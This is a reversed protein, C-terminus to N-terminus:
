GTAADVVLLVATVFLSTRREDVLIRNVRALADGPGSANDTAAHLLARADAMLLAAPIGKGTVDAVLLAVRSPDGRVRFADFLDGGVERAPEYAAGFTWGDAVPLQRPVLSLQIKRGITMEQSVRAREAHEAAAGLALEIARAVLGVVQTHEPHGGMSGVVQGIERGRLTVPRRLDDEGRPRSGAVVRGEADVLAIPEGDMAASALELLGAAVERDLLQDLPTV